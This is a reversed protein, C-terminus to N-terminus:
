DFRGCYRHINDMLLDLDLPKKLTAVTGECESGQSVASMVVVPIEAIKPDIAKAALFEWGTMVPMMLDLLVLGPSRVNRLVQLGISGDAAEFVEYGCFQLYERLAERISLDDEILVISKITSTINSSTQTQNM